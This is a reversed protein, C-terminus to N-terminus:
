HVRTDNQVGTLVPRRTLSSHGRTIITARHIGQPKKKREEQEEEKMKGRRIETTASYIDAMSAYM